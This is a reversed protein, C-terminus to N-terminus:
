GRIRVWGRTIVFTVIASSVILMADHWSRLEFM